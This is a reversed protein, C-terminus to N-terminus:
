TYKRRNQQRRARQREGKAMGAHVAFDANVFFFSSFLFLLLTPDPACVGASACVNLCVFASVVLVM